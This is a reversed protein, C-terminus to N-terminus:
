FFHIHNWNETKIISCHNHIRILVERHPHGYKKQRSSSICQKLNPLKELLDSSTSTKSGHHGLLLVSVKKINPKEKLWKKETSIPSDGPIVWNRIQIIQSNKNDDKQHKFPVNFFNIEEFINNSCNSITLAGVKKKPINIWSPGFLCVQKLNSIISKIFNYHDQDPHSLILINERWSCYKKVNKIPNFEGGFDFHWCKQKNVYTVWQGQGVNWVIWQTMPLESTLIKPFLCCTFIILKSKLIKM